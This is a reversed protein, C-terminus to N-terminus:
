NAATLLLPVPLRTITLGQDMVMDGKPAWSVFKYPGTGIAAKGSNFQENRAEMGISKPVVFLRIFDNPLTPAAAKTIVHLTFKDVVKTEKVQKAERKANRRNSSM